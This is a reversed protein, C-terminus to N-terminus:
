RNTVMNKDLVLLNLDADMEGPRRKNNYVIKCKVRGLIGLDVYGKWSRDSDAWFRGAIIAKPSREENVGDGM